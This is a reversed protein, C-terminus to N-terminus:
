NEDNSKDLEKNKNEIIEQHENLVKQILPKIEPIDNKVTDWIIKLNVIDYGHIVRDRMRAM